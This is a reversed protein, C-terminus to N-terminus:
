WQQRRTTVHDTDRAAARRACQSIASWISHARVHSVPVGVLVCEGRRAARADVDGNADDDDDDDDGGGGGDDDDSLEM